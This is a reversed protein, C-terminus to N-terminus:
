TVPDYFTGWLKWYSGLFFNSIEQSKSSLEARTEKVEQDFMKLSEGRGRERHKM